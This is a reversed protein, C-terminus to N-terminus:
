WVMNMLYDPNRVQEEPTLSRYQKLHEQVGSCCYAREGRVWDSLGATHLSEHTLVRGFSAGGTRVADHGLNVTVINGGVGNVYAAVNKDRTWDDASVANAIKGDSGDSRLAAAGDRLSSSATRLRDGGDKGKADLKDAKRDMREAQREMLDAAKTQVKEFKKWEDDTFGDGRGYLGDPDTRNLPDNAVYAYLNLDDEYGIPDTQMFRGLSPSYFRAKYYLLGLDPLAAQGTYQFRLANGSATIGYADYYRVQQMAGSPLSAAVVSGQHDAHLYRRTAASVASGEYWLLPEDVGPGHVYRRQPLLSAGTAYEAILRDGDYIFRVTGSSTTAEWLRGLPDYKLTGTKAGSASVLRNETDYGFTTAGDGTLNGNTDWGHTTGGVQTYQNRGNTVYSKVSNSLPFEYSNNTQVRTVIQSAPNYAFGFGADNTTTGSGDLDHTLVELRSLIDYEYGTVAGSGGRTLANRRREADYGLSALVTATGNEKIEFLRDASDYAYEFTKGDPHILQDRNGRVDYDSTVTRATGGMNSSSTRLWGFGDYTNTVGQGSDSTFRAYTLLGRVDYGHYVTYAAAGSTSAPVTKVRVRNLADFTYTLTKADRKRLSTRNGADDYGYQEYDSNSSQNAGKTAVPFRLKALRDFGDYELTSLNGNADKVTARKGNPTYTYTAYDQQLPTGYGRQV